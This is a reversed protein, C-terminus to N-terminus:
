RLRVNLAWLSRATAEPLDPGSSKVFIQQKVYLEADGAPAGSYPV